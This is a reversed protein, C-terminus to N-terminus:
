GCLMVDPSFVFKLLFYSSTSKDILRWSVEDSITAHAAHLLTTKILFVCMPMTTVLMTVNLLVLIVTM